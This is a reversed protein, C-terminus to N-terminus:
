DAFDSEAHALDLAEEQEEREMRERETAYYERSQEASVRACEDAWQAADYECTFVCGTDICTGSGDEAGWPAGCERYGAIFRGHSLMIVCGRYTSNDGMDPEGMYWGTHDIVRWRGAAKAVDDAWARQRVTIAGDEIWQMGDPQRAGVLAPPYAFTSTKGYKNARRALLRQKTNM